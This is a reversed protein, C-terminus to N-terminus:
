GVDLWGPRVGWAAERGTVRGALDILVEAVFACTLDRETPGLSGYDLMSRAVAAASAAHALDYAVVQDVDAGGRHALASAAGGVVSEALRTAARAGSLPDDHADPM